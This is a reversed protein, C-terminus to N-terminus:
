ILKLAKGIGEDLAQQYTKKRGSNEVLELGKFHITYGYGIFRYTREEAVVTPMVRIDYRDILWMQADYLTPALYEYQEGDKNTLYDFDWLALCRNLKFINKDTFVKEYVAHCKDRYGKDQLMKAVEFSVYDKDEM